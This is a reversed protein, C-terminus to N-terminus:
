EDRRSRRVSSNARETCCVLLPRRVGHTTVLTSPLRRASGRRSRGVAVVHEWSAMLLMYVSDTYSVFHVSVPHPAKKNAVSPPTCRGGNEVVISMTCHFSSLHPTSILFLLLPSSSFPSTKKLRYPRATM